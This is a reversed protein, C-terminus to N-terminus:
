AYGEFVVISAEGFPDDVATRDARSTSAKGCRSYRTM